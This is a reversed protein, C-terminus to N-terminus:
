TLFQLLFYWATGDTFSHDPDTEANDVELRDSDDDDTNTKNPPKFKFDHSFVALKKGTEPAQKDSTNTAKDVTAISGGSLRLVLCLIINIFYISL